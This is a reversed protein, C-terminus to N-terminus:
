IFSKFDNKPKHIIITNFRQILKENLALSKYVVEKERNRIERRTRAQVKRSLTHFKKQIETNESGHCYKEKRWSLGM